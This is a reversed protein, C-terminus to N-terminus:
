GWTQRWASCWRQRLTCSSNTWLLCSHPAATMFSRSFVCSESTWRRPCLCSNQTSDQWSASCRSCTKLTAACPAQACSARSSSRPLPFSVKMVCWVQHPNTASSATSSPPCASVAGIDSGVGIVSGASALISGEGGSSGGPIHQTNYPNNTVGYLHNHSELWMCLESCNTVGLPIAGARKLLAVPPADGESVVGRRSVLGTTNPMGQLSFSEKVTLPVGLLPRQQQLVEEGGQQEQVLRDAQAAEQLAESFRDKVM